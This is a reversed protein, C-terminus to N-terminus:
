TFSRAPPMMLLASLRCRGSLWDHSSGDIQLLMGESSSRERRMRRVSPKMRGPKIINQGRLIRYLTTHGISIDEHELLMDQLHCTNFGHYKGGEGSLSLISQFVPLTTKNVPTRGANGHILSHLGEEEFDRFIRNVQRVSIGLLRQADLKSIRGASLQKLIEARRIQKKNLTITEM